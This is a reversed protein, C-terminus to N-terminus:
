IPVLQPTSWHLEQAYLLYFVEPAHHHDLNRMLLPMHTDSLIVLCRIGQDSQVSARVSTFKTCTCRKAHINVCTCSLAIVHPHRNANIFTHKGTHISTHKLVRRSTGVSYLLMLCILKIFRKAQDYSVKTIYIIIFNSNIEVM